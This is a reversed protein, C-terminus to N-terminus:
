LSTVKLDRLDSMYHDARILNALGHIGYVDEPYPGGDIRFQRGDWMSYVDTWVHLNTDIAKAFGIPVTANNNHSNIRTVDFLAGIDGVTTVTITDPKSPRPTTTSTTTEVANLIQIWSGNRM